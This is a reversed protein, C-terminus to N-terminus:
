CGHYPRSTAFIIIFFLFALLSLTSCALFNILIFFRSKIIAHGLPIHQVVIRSSGQILSRHAIRSHVMLFWCVLLTPAVRTVQVFAPALLSSSGAVLAPSM